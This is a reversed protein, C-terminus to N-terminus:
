KLGNTRYIAEMEKYVIECSFQKIKTVNERGMRSRINKDKILAELGKAFGNIDHPNFLFGGKDDDILDTNGRIKSAVIPLGSAMAEMVSVPLGERLSPFCFIDSCELLDVIDTRYGLLHFRDSLGLEKALSLLYDHMRGQGAIFYHIHPNNIRAMARLIVEHNKNKNLEGVSFLIITEDSLDFIEKLSSTKTSCYYKDTDIGVGPLYYTNKAHLHSNAFSCDERNITILVDTFFSCIWEIPFYILWNIVPAGKFFHFGHATYIIKTGKKRTKIAAIRTLFSAVPTHCHVFDFYNDNLIDKLQFYAKINNLNLPSREFSVIYKKNCFPLDIDNNAIVNTEYGSAQLDKLYPLHFSKIHSMVSAVYAVKKM